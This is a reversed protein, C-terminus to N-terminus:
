APIRRLVEDRLDELASCGDLVLDSAEKDRYTTLYPYRGKALYHALERRLRALAEEPSENAQPVDRLIRRAMAVDLPTDIFVALDILDAFRPHGRGLPYDLVLYRVDGAALAADVARRMGPCDFARIDAGQRSWLYFDEPYVNSEDFDDFCFLRSQPLARHLATALATKGGGSVGNLAVVFSRQKKM